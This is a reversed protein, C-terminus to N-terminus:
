TPARHGTGSRSGCSAVLTMEVDNGAFRGTASTAGNVGEATFSGDSAVIGRLRYTAAGGINIVINSGTVAVYADYSPCRGSAAGSAEWRGRYTQASAAGAVLSLLAALLFVRTLM